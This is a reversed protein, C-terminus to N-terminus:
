ELNDILKCMADFHSCRKRIKAVGINKAIIIGDSTKSKEFGPYIANLRKSPATKPSDNIYEPNEDFSNLIDKLEETKNGYSSFHNAIVEVESFLFAEFEHVQLRFKFKPNNVDTELREQIHKVKEELTRQESTLHSKFSEHLGYYDLVLLLLECHTSQRIFRDKILALCKDYSVLGGKKGRSYVNKKTPIVVVELYHQFLGDNLRYYGQLTNKYFQEETEGEVIFFVNAM